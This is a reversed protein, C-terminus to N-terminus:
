KVSKSPSLLVNLFYRHVIGVLDFV